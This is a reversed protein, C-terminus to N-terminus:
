SMSPSISTVGALFMLYRGSLIEIIESRTTADLLTNAIDMETEKKESMHLNATTAVLARSTYLVTIPVLSGLNARQNRM